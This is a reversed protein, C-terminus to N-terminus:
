SKFHATKGSFIMFIIKKFEFDHEGVDIRYTLLFITNTTTYIFFKLLRFFLKAGGVVQGAGDMVIETAM